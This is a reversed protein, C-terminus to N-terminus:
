TPPSVGNGTRLAPTPAAVAAPAQYGRVAITHCLTSAYWAGNFAASSVISLSEPAGDSGAIDRASSAASTAGSCTPAALWKANAAASADDTDASLAFTTGAPFPPWSATNFTVLLHQNTAV